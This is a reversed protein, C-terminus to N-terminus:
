VGSYRHEPIVYWFISFFHCISGGMVFIHWVTHFYPKDSQLYFLVGLTYCAGGICLWLLCWGPVLALMPKIAIVILWGMLVYGATSIFDYRHKFLSKLIIGALALGWVLGFLTWGWGGRLYTLTFPTYTGAILIYICIHDLLRFFSKHRVKRCSHYLTSALYLIVLSSGFITCGVIHWATGKISSYVILLCLGTISLIFGIGHSIANLTEERLSFIGSEMTKSSDSDSM